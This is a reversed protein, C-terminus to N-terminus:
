LQKFELLLGKQLGLREVFPGASSAFIEQASIDTVLLLKYYIM